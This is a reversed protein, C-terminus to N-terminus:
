MSFVALKDSISSHLNRREEEIISDNVEGLSAFAMEFAIITKLYTEKSAKNTGNLIAQTMPHESNVYIEVGSNDSAPAQKGLKEYSLTWPIGKNDKVLNQINNLIQENPDTQKLAAEKDRRKALHYSFPMVYSAIKDNLGKDWSFNTKKFDVGVLEDASTPATIMWRCDRNRPHLNWFGTVNRDNNNTICSAILRNGRVLYGGQSHNVNEGKPITADYVDVVQIRFSHGKYEFEEDLKVEAGSDLLLPHLFPVSNTNNGSDVEDNDFYFFMERKMIFKFYTKGIYRSLTNKINDARYSRLNDLKSISVLTGTGEGVYQKFLELERSPIEEETLSIDGISGTRAIFDLDTIRGIIAKTEPDRTITLRQRGQSMSGVIGGLGYKGIDQQDYERESGYKHCNKLEQKTMGTGNDIFILHGGQISRKVKEMTGNEDLMIIRCWTAQADISNDILEGAVTNYTYGSARLSEILKAGPINEEFEGPYRVAVDPTGDNNNIM